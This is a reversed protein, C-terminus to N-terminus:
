ALAIVAISLILGHAIGIPFIVTGVVMFAWNSSMSTVAIHMLLMAVAMCGLLIKFAWLVFQKRTPLIALLDQASM